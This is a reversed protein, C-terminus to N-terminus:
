EPAPFPSAVMAIVGTPEEKCRWPMCGDLELEFEFELASLSSPSLIIHVLERKCM